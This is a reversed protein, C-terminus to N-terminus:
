ATEGPASSSHGEVAGRRCVFWCDKEHAFLCGSDLRGESLMYGCVCMCAHWVYEYISKWGSTWLLMGGGTETRVCVYMCQVWFAAKKHSFSPPSMTYVFQMVRIMPDNIWKGPLRAQLCGGPARRQQGGPYLRTKGLLFVTGSVAALRNGSLIFLVQDAQCKFTVDM